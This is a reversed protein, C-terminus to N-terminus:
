GEILGNTIAGVQEDTRVVLTRVGSGASIDIVEGDLWSVGENKGSNVRVGLCEIQKCVAERFEKGKEGIGGAFVVADVNGGMKVWYSGIYGVVRDVFIDFALKAIEDGEAAKKTVVGFDTTGTLAKWGSKKNLIDEAETIHM